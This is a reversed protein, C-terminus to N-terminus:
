STSLVSIHDNLYEMWTGLLHEPVAGSEAFLKIYGVWNNSTSSCNRRIHGSRLCKSCQTLQGKYRIYLRKGFAPLIAPIHKRLRMLTEVSDETCGPLQPNERYKLEGEITGYLGLWASIQHDELHFGTKVVTVLILDGLKPPQGLNILLQGTFKDGNIVFEFYQFKAPNLKIPAKLKFNFGIGRDNSKITAV